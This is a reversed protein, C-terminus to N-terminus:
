FYISARDEFKPKRKARKEKRLNKAFDRNKKNRWANPNEPVLGEIPAIGMQDLRQRLLRVHREHVKHGKNKMEDLLGLSEEVLSARALADVLVGYTDNRPKLGSRKLESFMELAKDIRKVRCYMEIMHHKSTADPRIDLKDYVELCQEARNIRLSNTCVSLLTNLTVVSPKVGESVMREFLPVANGFSITSHDGPNVDLAFPVLHTREFGTMAPMCAVAADGDDGVLHYGSGDQDDGFMTAPEASAEDLFQLSADNGESSLLGFEEMEEEDEADSISGSGAMSELQGSYIGDSNPQFLPLQLVLNDPLTDAADEPVGLLDLIEPDMKGPELGAERNLEYDTKTFEKMYHPNKFYVGGHKFILDDAHVNQLKRILGEVEDFYHGGMGEIIALEKEVNSLGTRKRVQKRAALAHVRLLANYNWENAVIGYDEQFANWVEYATDIDNRMGCAKLALSLTMQNPTTKTSSFQALVDLARDAYKPSRACAKMCAHYLGITQFELKELTSPPIADVADRFHKMAAEVQNRSAANEIMFTYVPTDFAVNREDRFEAIITEADDYRKHRRLMALMASVMPADPVIDCRDLYARCEGIARTVDKYTRASAMMQTLLKASLAKPGVFSEAHRLVQLALELRGTNACAKLVASWTKEDPVIGDDLISEGVTYLEAVALDVLGSQAAAYLATDHKNKDDNIRAVSLTQPLAEPLMAPDELAKSHHRREKSETLIRERMPETLIDLLRLNAEYLRNFGGGPRMLDSIQRQQKTIYKRHSMNQAALERRERTKRAIESEKKRKRKPKKTGAVQLQFTPTGRSRAAKRAWSSVSRAHSSVSHSASSASVSVSSGRALNLSAAGANRGLALFRSAM